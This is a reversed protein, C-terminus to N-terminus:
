RGALFPIALRGLHEGSKADVLEATFTVESVEDDLDPFYLFGSVAGGPLIVGEPLARAIMDQTPLEVPWMGHFRDFYIPDSAFTEPWPTLGPYYPGFGPAVFFGSGSFLPDIPTLGAGGYGRVEETSDIKLPPLAALHEGQPTRLAFEGYRLRVPHESRNELTVKVPLVTRLQPPFGQWANGDVVIRVGAAQDFASTDGVQRASPAPELRPSVACATGLVLAAAVWPMRVVHKM